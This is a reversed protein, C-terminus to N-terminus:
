RKWAWWLLGVAVVLLLLWEGHSHLLGAAGHGPNASAGTVALLGAVSLLTKM